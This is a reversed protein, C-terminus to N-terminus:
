RTPVTRPPIDHHEKTHRQPAHLPDSPWCSPRKWSATMWPRPPQDHGTGSDERGGRPLHARTRDRTWRPPFPPVRHRQGTRDAGRRYRLPLPGAPGFVEEGSAGMATDVMAPELDADAFILPLAKGGQELTLRKFLPGAERAISRGAATSGTFCVKDAGAHRVTDNLPVCGTFGATPVQRGEFKDALRHLLRARAAGPLGSWEGQDFHQRVATIDAATVAAMQAMVTGAGDSTDRKRGAIVHLFAPLRDM